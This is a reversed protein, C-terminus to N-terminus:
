NKKWLTEVLKTININDVVEQRQEPLVHALEEMPLSLQHYGPLDGLENQWISTEFKGSKVARRLLREVTKTTLDMAFKSEEEDEKEPETAPVVPVVPEPDKLATERKVLNSPLWFSGEFDVPRNIMQRAEEDSLLGNNRYKIILEAETEPTVKVLAKRNGEIYHSSFQDSRLLKSSFEEEMGHLWIDITDLFSLREQQVSGYAVSSIRGNIIYSSLGLANAVQVIESERLENLQASDNNNPLVTALMGPRLLAPKFANQVGGAHVDNWDKRFAEMAKPDGMEPPLTIIVSPKNGNQFYVNTYRQLTIGLGFTEALLSFLPLGSIGDNGIGRLHLVDDAYLKHWRGDKTTTYFLVDEDNENKEIVIGTAASDLLVLSEPEGYNGRNIYIYGNGWVIANAVWSSLLVSKTSFKNPKHLVAQAPHNEDRIRSGDPLRKYCDMPVRSCNTAIARVGNLVAPNQLVTDATILEGSSAYGGINNVLYRLGADGHSQGLIGWVTRKIRKLM